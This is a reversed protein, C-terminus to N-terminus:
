PWLAGEKFYTVSILNHSLSFYDKGWPWALRRQAFRLFIMVISTIRSFFGIFAEVFSLM